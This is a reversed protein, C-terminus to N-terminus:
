RVRRFWDPSLNDTSEIPVQRCGVAGTTFAAGVTHLLARLAATTMGAARNRAVPTLIADQTVVRVAVSPRVHVVALYHRAPVERSARSHWCRFTSSDQSAVTIRDDRLPCPRVTHCLLFAELARMCPRHPDMASVDTHFEILMVEVGVLVM